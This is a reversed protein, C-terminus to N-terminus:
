TVQGCTTRGARTYETAQEGRDAGSAGELLGYLLDGLLQPETLQM